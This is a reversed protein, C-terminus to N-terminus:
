IQTAVNINTLGFFFYIFLFFYFLYIFFFFYYIFLFFFFYIFLTKNGSIDWYKKPDTPLFNKHVFKKYLFFM